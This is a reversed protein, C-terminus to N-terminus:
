RLEPFVASLDSSGDRPISGSTNQPAACRDLADRFVRVVVGRSLVSLATGNCCVFTDFLRPHIRGIAESVLRGNAVLKPATNSQLTFLVNIKMSASGNRNLLAVLMKGSSVDIYGRGTTHKKKWLQRAEDMDCQLHM